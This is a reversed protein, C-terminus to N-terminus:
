KGPFVTLTKQKSFPVVPAKARNFKSAFGAFRLPAIRIQLSDNGSPRIGALSDAFQDSLLATKNDKRGDPGTAVFLSFRSMASLLAKTTSVLCSKESQKV